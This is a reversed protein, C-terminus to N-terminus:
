AEGSPPVEVIQPPEPQSQGGEQATTQQAAQAQAKAVAAAHQERAKQSDLVAQMEPSPNFGAHDSHKKYFYNDPKLPPFDDPIAKTLVLQLIADVSKQKSADRHWISILHANFRVSLGVGCIQDGEELVDQLEEGIALLQVRTWFDAGNAKPVRFTWSGGLINRRDEWVPKFGAKFLYISERMKINEIPMNNNYRWFDQVSEITSGLKELNSHYSGDASKGQQDKDPRDFWINWYHQTPLPRMTKLFNRKADDREAAPSSVSADNSQSLGSLGRTFLGPRSSM